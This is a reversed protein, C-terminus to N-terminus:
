LLVSQIREELMTMIRKNMDSSMKEYRKYEELTFQGIIIGCLETRFRSDNQLIKSLSARKKMKDYGSFDVKNKTLYSQFRAILLDHQMKLIPRLTINQFAEGESNYTQSAISSLIPRISKKDGTM